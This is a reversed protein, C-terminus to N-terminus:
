EGVEECKYNRPEDQLTEMKNKILGYLIIMKEFSLENCLIDYLKYINMGSIQYWTPEVKVYEIEKSEM